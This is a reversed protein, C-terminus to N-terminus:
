GPKEAYLALSHCERLIDDIEHIPRKRRGPPWGGRLPSIRGIRDPGSFRRARWRALRMAQAPLDDLANKLSILRRCLRASAIPDDPTPLPKPAPEPQRMYVPLSWDPDLSRIRPMTTAYRRRQFEFRKFSDFLPFAPIPAASNEAPKATKDWPTQGPRVYHGQYFIGTKPLNKTGGKLAECKVNTLPLGSAAAQRRAGPRLQVVVERAAIIILRRVASEAPRLVLLVHRFVGRPLTAAIVGEALGAMAFLAAIIRLLAERNRETARPWNITEYAM